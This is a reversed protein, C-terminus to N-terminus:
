IHKWSKKNIAYYMASNSKYGFIFKLEEISCIRRKFIYRLEKITEDTNITSAIRSGYAQRKHAVNHQINQKHTCWELNELVNNFRNFDIHNVCPYNNPNPIFAIAILRHVSTYLHKGNKALLVNAYRNHSIKLLKERKLQNGLAENIIIRQKGKVRGFNSVQYCDDYGVVDRWVEGELDPISIIRTARIHKERILKFRSKCYNSCFRWNINRVILKKNCITCSISYAM